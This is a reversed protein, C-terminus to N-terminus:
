SQSQMKEDTATEANSKWGCRDYYYGKFKAKEEESMGAMKAEMRQKWYMKKKQSWSNHNHKGWGRGMGSFGTLLKGLVLLGIAQWFTVTNGNFLEPILWNWLWMTAFGMITIMAAGAFVAGIGYKIWNKRQM